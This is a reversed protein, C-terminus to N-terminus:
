RECHASEDHKIRWYNQNQINKIELAFRYKMMKALLNCLKNTKMHEFYFRIFQIKIPHGRIRRDCKTCNEKVVHRLQFHIYTSISM